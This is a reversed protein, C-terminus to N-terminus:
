VVAVMILYASFSFYKKGITDGMITKINSQTAYVTYCIFNQKDIIKLM